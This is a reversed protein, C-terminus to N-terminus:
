TASNKWAKGVCNLGKRFTEETMPAYGLLVINNKEPLTGKLYFESLGYVRVGSEAAKQVAQQETMGNKMHLLLHIGANEGSCTCIEGMEERLWRLLLEHRNKYLSRMRNLHREYYGEKLFLELIKQDTRSVTSSFPKGSNMYKDMLTEPLVMYSVRISPAISKSFTGLYIVKGETDFGQLSPIPKGKYRFESDYDDEIIYHGPRRAWKLLEMRRKLPMVTGMPFQHSPMAYVVNAGSQKLSEVSIGSEDETVTCRELGMHGFAHWASSYTPNEMAVKNQKGIITCLLMLLYDNGAGVLIQSPKCHVGRARYLYDGIAERFSLEGCPHGLTGLIDQEGTLVRKSLKRWTNYPFNGPAIGNLAFDCIRNGTKEKNKEEESCLDTREKQGPLNSRMESTDYIGQIDCVYYGKCPVSEMYGESVLQDYALDVTSRSVALNGALARSSPLRMGATLRGEQIEKKFYICIQEYLPIHNGQDLAIILDNM